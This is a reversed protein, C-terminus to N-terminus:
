HHASKRNNDISKELADWREKGPHGVAMDLVKGERSLVAVSPVGTVGLQNALQTSSDIMSCQELSKVHPKLAFWAKASKVDEDVSVPMFVVDKRDKLREQLESMVKDCGVCWSAWFQLVVVKDKIAGSDFAKGDLSQLKIGAPIQRSAEAFAPRSTWTLATVISVVAIILQHTKM